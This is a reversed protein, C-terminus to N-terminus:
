NSYSALIEYAELKAYHRLVTAVNDGNDKLRKLHTITQLVKNKDKPAM